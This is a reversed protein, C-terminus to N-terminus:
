ANDLSQMETVYEETPCDACASPILGHKCCELLGRYTGHHKETNCCYEKGVYKRVGNRGYELGCVPCYKMAVFREKFKSDELIEKTGDPYTVIWEGESVVKWQPTQVAAQVITQRTTDVNECLEFTHGDEPYETEYVAYGDVRMEKHYQVADVEIAKIQYKM